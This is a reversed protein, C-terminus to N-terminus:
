RRNDQLVIAGMLVIAFIRFIVCIIAGFIGCIVLPIWRLIDLVQLHTIGLFWDCFWNAWIWYLYIGVFPICCALTLLQVIFTMLFGGLFAVLLRPEVIVWNPNTAVLLLAIFGMIIAIVLSSVWSSSYTKVIVKKKDVTM